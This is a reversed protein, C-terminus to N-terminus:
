FKVALGVTARDSHYEGQRVIAYEVRLKAANSAKITIMGGAEFADKDAGVSSVQWNAEGLEAFRVATADKLEHRWAGFLSAEVPNGVGVALEAGLKSRASTWKESPMTLSTIPSGAEAVSGAKSRAFEIGAVPRLVSRSGLVVDVRADLAATWTRIKYADTLQSSHNTLVVNRDTDVSGENYGVVLGLSLAGLRQAGYAFASWTKVTASSGVDSRLDGDSYGGGFGLRTGDLNVVNVGAILGHAKRDYGYAIDDERVETSQGIYRGWVSAGKRTSEVGCGDEAGQVPPDSFNGPAQVAPPCGWPEQAATMAIQSIDRASSLAMQMADAHIEGSAQSFAYTLEESDYGYLGSFLAYFPGGRAHTSPRFPDLGDAVWIANRKWGAGAGFTAYSIPTVALAIQTPRYIVDFRTNEALGSTPQRVSDFATSGIAGGDVIVFTDGVVPTFTNNGGSIGRLKTELIGNPEFQAGLTLALRDYSGAGGARDYDRGDIEMELVAEDGASVQGGAVVLTGVSNGPALVAGSYLSVHEAVITGVGGLRSDPLVLVRKTSLPANVLVKGGDVIFDENFTSIAGSLTLVGDGIKTIGGVGTLGGTLAVDFGNTDITGGQIQVDLPIAVDDATDFQLTGGVFVPNVDGDALETTTYFSKALDIDPTTGGIPILVDQGRTIDTSPDFDVNANATPVANGFGDVYVYGVHAGYPCDLAVFLLDYDHGALMDIDEVKWDSTVYYGAQRFITTNQATYASYAINNIIKGTTRDTVKIIFSPSDTAGHSPELVANWAYYLKNGTYNAVSQSLATVGYNPSLDNLRVAHNGAFVTPTGTIPDLEGANTVTYANPPGSWTTDAPPWQATSTWSGGSLVWGTTDGSEFGSNVVTQSWAPAALALSACLAMSSVALRKHMSNIAFTDPTASGFM